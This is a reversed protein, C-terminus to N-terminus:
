LLTLANDTAHAPSDIGGSGGGQQKFLAVIDDADGEFEPRLIAHIAGLVFAASGLGDGVGAGDAVFEVDGIVENILGGLELLVDDLVEGVFVFGLGHTM